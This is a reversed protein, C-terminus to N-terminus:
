ISLRRMLRAAVYGVAFAAAMAIWPENRVFETLNESMRGALDIGANAYERAADYGKNSYDHAAGAYERAAGYGRNAYERAADVGKGAYDKAADAAQRASAAANQAAETMDKDVMIGEGTKPTKAFESFLV